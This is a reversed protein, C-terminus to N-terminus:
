GSAFVKGQGDIVAVRASDVPHVAVAAVNGGYGAQIWTAGEDDSRYLGSPTGAYVVGGAPAAALAVVPSGGVPVPSSYSEGGDRSILIGQQTGVYLTEPTGGTALAIVPPAGRAQWSAGGDASRFLGSGVVLAYLVNPNASGVAFAHIDTGPLDTKFPSWNKGGDNSRSFIGHGATWVVEPSAPNAGLIMADFNSREVLNGWTRGGDGSRMIGNHNGFFLTTPEAPSFLLSHYDAARISGVQRLGGEAAAAPSAGPAVGTTAQTAGGSGRMVFGVVAIALLAFAAVGGYLAWPTRPAPTRPRDRKRTRAM